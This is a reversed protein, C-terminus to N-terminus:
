RAYSFAQATGGSAALRTLHARAAADLRFSERRVDAFERADIRARM